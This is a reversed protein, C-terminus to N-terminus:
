AGAEHKTKNGSRDDRAFINREGGFLCFTDALSAVTSLLEFEASALGFGTEEGGKAFINVLGFWFFGPGDDEPSMRADEDDSGGDGVLRVRLLAM